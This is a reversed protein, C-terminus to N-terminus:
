DDAMEKEAEARWFEASEDNYSTFSEGSGYKRATVDLVANVELFMGDDEITEAAYNCAGSQLLGFPYLNHQAALHCIDCLLDGIAEQLGGDYNLPSGRCIRRYAKLAALANRAREENTM